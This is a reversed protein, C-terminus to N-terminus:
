KSHLHTECKENIEQTQCCLVEKKLFFFTHFWGVKECALKMDHEFYERDKLDSVCEFPWPAMPRGKGRLGQPTHSSM